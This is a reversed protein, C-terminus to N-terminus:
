LLVSQSQSLRACDQAIVWEENTPIVLAKIECTPDTIEGSDGFRAALNADNNVTFHYRTLQDLVRKRVNASNEGIGGTFIIADVKPMVGIYSSIYKALRYTMVEMARVAEDKGAQVGEEVHRCDSSFGTLGLLGSQKHLLDNMEKPSYGLQNILYYPIAADIDGCRTGMVLGELPTLGMSTDVSKGNEVACISAGNGLHCVIVNTDEAKKGLMKAAEQSVYYHSTGHAGYRRIGHEEYLEYPLAYLYAKRPMSQHFATDFVAVQPLEPFMRRAANIGVVHTPNHLPALESLEDIKKLVGDDILVSQDFYNGGQVVRHGIGIIDNDLGASHLIQALKDLAEEHGANDALMTSEKEGNLKWKIRAGTQLLCEALGSLHEEGNDSDIIAFKLSSSGCNLVLALNASM